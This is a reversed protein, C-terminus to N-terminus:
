RCASATLELGVKCRVTPKGPTPLVVRARSSSRILPARRSVGSSHIIGSNPIRHASTAPFRSTRSPRSMQTAWWTNRAPPDTIRSKPQQDLSSRYARRAIALRAPASKSSCVHTEGLIFSSLSCRRPPALSRLLGELHGEVIVLPEAGQECWGRGVLESAARRRRRRCRELAPGGPSRFPPRRERAQVDSGPGATSLPGLIELGHRLAAHGLVAPDAGHAESRSAHDPRRQALLALGPHADDDGIRPTCRVLTRAADTAYGRGQWPVGIVWAVEAHSGGETVTAQVTGAAAGDPDRVIWNLWEELGDGSRGVVLRAYRERLTAADPPEGGIFEYLAPDALVGAMEEAHVVALPELRVVDGVLVMRRTHRM